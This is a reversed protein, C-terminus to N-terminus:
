FGGKMVGLAVPILPSAYIIEQPPQYVIISKSFTLFTNEKLTHKHIYTIRNYPVALHLSFISFFM